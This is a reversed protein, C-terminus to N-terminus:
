KLLPINQHHINEKVKSKEKMGEEKEIKKTMEEEDEQPLALDLKNLPTTRRM